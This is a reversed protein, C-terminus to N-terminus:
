VTRMVYKIDPLNEADPELYQVVTPATSIFDPDIIDLNYYMSSRKLVATQKNIYPEFTKLVDLRLQIEVINSRTATMKDIYYFGDFMLENGSGTLLAYNAMYIRNDDTFEVNKLNLLVTPHETDTPTKLSIEIGNTLNEVRKNIVNENDNNNM